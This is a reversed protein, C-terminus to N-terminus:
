HMLTYLCNRLFTTIERQRETKEREREKKERIKWERKRKERKDEV